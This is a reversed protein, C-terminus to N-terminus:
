IFNMKPAKVLIQRPNNLPNGLREESQGGPNADAARPLQSFCLFDKRKNM